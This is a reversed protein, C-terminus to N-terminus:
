RRPGPHLVLRPTTALTRVQLVLGHRVAGGAGAPSNPLAQVVVFGTLLLSSVMLRAVDM